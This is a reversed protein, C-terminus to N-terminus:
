DTASVIWASAPATIAEANAPRLHEVSRRAPTLVM